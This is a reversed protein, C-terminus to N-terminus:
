GSEAVARVLGRNKLEDWVDDQRWTDEKKFVLGDLEKMRPCKQAIMMEYRRRTVASDIDMQIQFTDDSATDGPVMTFPDKIYEDPDDPAPLSKRAASAPYFGITLPNM